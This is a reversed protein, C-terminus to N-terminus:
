EDDKTYGLENLDFPRDRWDDRVKVWLTLNVKADLMEEIDRRASSGIKKLM